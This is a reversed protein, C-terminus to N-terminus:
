YDLSGPSTPKSLDGIRSIPPRSYQALGHVKLALLKAM